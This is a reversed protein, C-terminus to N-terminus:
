FELEEEEGEGEEGNYLKLRYAISHLYEIVNGQRKHEEYQSVIREIMEQNRKYVGKVPYCIKKHGAALHAM